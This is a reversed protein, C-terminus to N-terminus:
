YAIAASYNKLDQEVLGLNSYVRAIAKAKERNLEKALALTQYYYQLAEKYNAQIHCIVGLNNYSRRLGYKNETYKHVEVAVLFQKKAEKHLGLRWYAFGLNNLSEGQNILRSLPEVEKSSPKEKWKRVNEKFLPLAKQYDGKDYYLFALRDRATTEYAINDLEQALIITKNAWYKLDALNQQKRAQIMQEFAQKMEQTLAEKKDPLMAAQQAQLTLSMTWVWCALLYWKLKLRFM